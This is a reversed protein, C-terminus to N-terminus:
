RLDTGLERTGLRRAVEGIRLNNRRAHDRLLDFAQDMELERAEALMGKAQEIAVRTTLAGQLQEALRVADAHSREQLIAITAADTLAQAVRLDADPVVRASTFFVNVAGVITERLRMPLALVSRYGLQVAFPAFQPWRDDAAEDLPTPGVGIGSAVCDLCPGEESQVEFLELSRMQETSSALVRLDGTRSALVIGIETADLLEVCRAVLTALLEALDFDSVLSDTLEILTDTVWGERDQVKMGTGVECGDERGGHRRRASRDGDSGDTGPLDDVV